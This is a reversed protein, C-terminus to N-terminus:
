PFLRTPKLLLTQRNWIQGPDWCDMVLHNVPLLVHIDTPELCAGGMITEFELRSSVLLCSVVPTSLHELARGRETETSAYALSHTRCESHGREGGQSTDTSRM